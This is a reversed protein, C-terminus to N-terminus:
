LVRERLQTLQNEFYWSGLLAITGGITLLAQHSISAAYFNWWFPVLVALAIVAGNASQLFRVTGSVLALAVRSRDRVRKRQDLRKGLAQLAGLIETQNSESTHRLIFAFQALYADGIEKVLQDLAEETTRGASFADVSREVAAQLPPNSITKGAETLASFVTPVVLYASYYASVLEGIGGKVQEQSMFTARQGLYLYLAIGVMILYVAVLLGGSLAAKVALGLGLALLILRPLQNSQPALPRLTVASRQAWRVWSPKRRALVWRVLQTGTSLATYAALGAALVSAGILLAHLVTEFM